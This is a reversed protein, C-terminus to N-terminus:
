TLVECNQSLYKFIDNQDVISRCQLNLTAFPKRPIIQFYVQSIYELSEREHVLKFPRVSVKDPQKPFLSSHVSRIPIVYLYIYVM